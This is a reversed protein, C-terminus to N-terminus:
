LRIKSFITLEYFFTNKHKQYSSKIKRIFYITLQFIIQHLILLLHNNYFTGKMVFINITNIDFFLINFNSQVHFFPKCVVFVHRVLFITCYHFVSFHNQSQPIKHPIPDFISEMSRYIKHFHSLLPAFVFEISNLQQSHENIYIQIKM